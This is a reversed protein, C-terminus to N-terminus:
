LRHRTVDWFLSSRLFLNLQYKVNTCYLALKHLKSLISIYQLGCHRLLTMTLMNWVYVYFNFMTGNVLM